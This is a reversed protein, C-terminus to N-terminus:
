EAPAVKAGELFTITRDLYALYEIRQSPTVDRPLENAMGIRRKAKIFDALAEAPRRASWASAAMKGFLIGARYHARSGMPLTIAFDYAQLAGNYDGSAERAAGLSEHVSIRLEALDQAIWHTEKISQEIQQAATELSALTPDPDETNFQRIGKRLLHKALSYHAQFASEMGGELHVARDYADEAEPDRHLQSLTNARNVVPGPDYPHFREAELYDQIAQGALVVSDAETASSATTQYLAGREKYFTSQPWIRIADKLADIKSEDSSIAQKNFYSSWLVRTVQTGKWGMPLLLIACALVAASLLIKLGFVQSISGRNVSGRSMQGLCIGLLLTGPMLHFVFSFCSQIFMGSFAALGGMRWATASPSDNSTEAFLIRIVALVVLTGLLCILLAAGISGYDTASQLVENHVQEPIHSLTEGQITNEAFRFSEWSFSRSGGGAMPHLGICSMAIGLFYLRCTNDLVGDISFGANRLEQSSQWGKLLFGGLVLGILPIAILGRAFWRSGKRKATILACVAIIGSAIVAGLIGGRSHTFYVAVIGALAILGFFLRTGMAHRGTLAAAGVLMSSAILYNAAENYHAYFGTPWGTPRDKFVPSYSPDLIQQFIVALNAVLLLTVGWILVREAFANGAIARISVFTGCVGALLMLDAQGLEVVPSMWARWAFWSAVLTGFSILGFDAGFKTRKWFIPLAAAVSVGLALMAPGWSWSRTQPGIVVALILSLVLFLSSVAPMM